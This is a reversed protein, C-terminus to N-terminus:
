DEDDEVEDDMTNLNTDEGWSKAEASDVSALREIIFGDLIIV